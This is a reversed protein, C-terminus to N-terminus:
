TIKAQQYNKIENMKWQMSKITKVERKEEM